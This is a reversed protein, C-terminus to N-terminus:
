DESFPLDTEMLDERIEKIRLLTPALTKILKKTAGLLKETIERSETLEKWFSSQANSLELIITELLAIAENFNTIKEPITLSFQHKQSLEKLLPSIEALASNISKVGVTEATKQDIATEMTANKLLPILSRLFDHLELLIRPALVRQFYASANAATPLSPAPANATEILAKKTELLPESALLSIKKKLYDSIRAKLGTRYKDFLEPKEEAITAVMDWMERQDSPKANGEEELGSEALIRFALEQIRGLSEKVASERVNIAQQLSAADNMRQLEPLVQEMMDLRSTLPIQREAERILYEVVTEGNIKPTTTTQAALATTLTAAILLLNLLQKKM